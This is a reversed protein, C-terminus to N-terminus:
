ETADVLGMIFLVDKKLTIGLSFGEIVLTRTRENFGALLSKYVMQHNEKSVFRWGMDFLIPRTLHDHKPLPAPPDFLTAM